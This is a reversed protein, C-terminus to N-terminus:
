GLNEQGRIADHFRVQWESRPFNRAYLLACLEGIGFGGRCEGEILAKQEGWIHCYVEYAMLTVVQPMRSQRSHFHNQVPHTPIAEM